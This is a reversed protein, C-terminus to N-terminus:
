NVRDRKAQRLEAIKVATHDIDQASLPVVDKVKRKFVGKAEM